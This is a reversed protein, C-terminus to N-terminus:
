ISAGNEPIEKEVTRVPLRFCDLTEPFLSFPKGPLALSRM